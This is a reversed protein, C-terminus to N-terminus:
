AFVERLRHKWQGGEIFNEGSLSFSCSRREMKIKVLDGSM